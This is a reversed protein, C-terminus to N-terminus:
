GLDGFLVEKVKAKTVGVPTSGPEQDSLSPEDKKLWEATARQKAREQARRVEEESVLGESKSLGAEIQKSTLGADKLDEATFEAM